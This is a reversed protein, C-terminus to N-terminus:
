LLLITRHTAGIISLTGDSGAVLVLSDVNQVLMSQCILCLTLSGSFTNPPAGRFVVPVFQAIM